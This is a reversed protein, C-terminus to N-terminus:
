RKLRATGADRKPCSGIGSSTKAAACKESVDSVYVRQLADCSTHILCLKLWFQQPYAHQLICLHAIDQLRQLKSELSHKKLKRRGAQMNSMCCEKKELAVSDRHRVKQM